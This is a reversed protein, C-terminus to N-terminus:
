ISSLRNRRYPVRACKLSQRRITNFTTWAGISHVCFNRQWISDVTNLKLVWMEDSISFGGLTTNIYGRTDYYCTTVLADGPLVKPRRRLTRIEQFHHSYYDDRNLLPLEINDRFHRTMIRVGRLHTHLQSGFVTIGAPPLARDTCEAICYGSVPFALIGQPIAMKDTYELGLEMIASDYKRLKKALRIRLGSDDTLGSKLMPNNFHVELRIYPNYEPGGIPLGADPPYTFASAGMAWLSIVRNCVKAAAPLNDCDGSYLPIQVNVDTECHFVEMHHVIGPNSILPEFQVIHHKRRLFDDLKQIHCWYTTEKDPITVKELAVDM